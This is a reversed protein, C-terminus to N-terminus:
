IGSQIDGLRRRFVPGWCCLASLELLLYKAWSMGIVEGFGVDLVSDSEHILFSTVGAWIRLKLEFECDLSWRSKLGSM